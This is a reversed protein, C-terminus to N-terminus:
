RIVGMGSTGGAVEDVEQGTGLTIGKERWRRGKEQEKRQHSKSLVTM